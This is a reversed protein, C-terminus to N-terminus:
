EARVVRARGGKKAQYMAADARAILDELSALGDASAVGISLSAVISQDLATLPQSALRSLLREGFAQAGDLSTEPMLAVFEDGGLRAPLDSARLTARLLAGIHQLLADGAAHGFTDNIRKFGDVDLMACSLSHKHRRHRVWEADAHDLFARRNLVGTLSDIMALERLRGTLSALQSVSEQYRRRLAEVQDVLDPGTAAERGIGGVFRRELGFFRWAATLLRERGRHVLELSLAGTAERDLSLAQRLRAQSAEDLSRLFAEGPSVLPVASRLGASAKVVNLDGDLVVVFDPCREVLLLELGDSVSKGGTAISCLPM